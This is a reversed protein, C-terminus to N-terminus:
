SPREWPLRTLKRLEGLAQQDWRKRRRQRASAIEEQANPLTINITRVTGGGPLLPDVWGSPAAAPTVTVRVNTATFLQRDPETPPPKPGIVGGPHFTKEDKPPRVRVLAKQQRPTKPRPKISEVYEEPFHTEFSLDAERRAKKM